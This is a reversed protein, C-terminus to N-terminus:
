VVLLGIKAFILRSLAKSVSEMNKDVWFLKISSVTWLSFFVTLFVLVVIFVNHAKQELDIM